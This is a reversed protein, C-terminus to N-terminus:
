KGIKPEDPLNKWHTPTFPFGISDTVVWSMGNEWWEIMRIVKGNWGLIPTREKKASSIPKWREM